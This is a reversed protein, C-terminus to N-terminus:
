FKKTFEAWAYRGRNSFLAGNYGLQEDSVPPEENFMNRMGIKFTSNELSGSDFTYRVNANVTTFDGVPLFTGPSSTDNDARTSSDETEGVHKVFMGAGWSDRNWIVSATARIRPRGDVEILTGGNTINIGADALQQLPESLDQDFKSLYAANFKFDFSGADVDLGYQIGLDVGEVERPDLNQFTDNFTLPEGISGDNTAARIVNPNFSGQSRLLADLQLGNTSGFLGVVGEQEIRWYDATITLNNTPTLVIGFSTNESDEPELNANGGRIEQLQVTEGTVPDNRTNVVSTQSLNLQVLNPARFGESYAARFQLWEVPYYSIAIKPRAVNGVDSFDEFRVALQVDLSHIGPMDSALPAVLESYFSAVTRDGTADPSASSGLIDSVNLLRGTVLDNFQTTGDSRPDRDETFEEERIEVGFAAGVQGAPL